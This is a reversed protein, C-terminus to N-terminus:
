HESIGLYGWTGVMMAEAPECHCFRIVKKSASDELLASICCSPGLDHASHIGSGRLRTTALFM